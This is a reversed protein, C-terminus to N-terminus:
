EGDELRLPQNQTRRLEHVSFRNRREGVIAADRLIGRANRVGIAHRSASLQITPAAGLEVGLGIQDREGFPM